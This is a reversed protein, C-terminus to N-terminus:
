TTPSTARVLHPMRGLSAVAASSRPSLAGVLYGILLFGVSWGGDRIPEDTVLAAYVIPTMFGILGGATRCRRSWALYRWVIPKADATLELGASGAWREVYPEDTRLGRSAVVLAILLPVAIGPLWELPDM